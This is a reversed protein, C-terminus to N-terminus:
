APMVMRVREAYERLCEALREIAEGEAQVIRDLDLVLREKRRQLSAALGAALREAGAVSLTGAVTVWVTSGPRLEVEVRHGDEDAGRLRRWVRSPLSENPVRFTRRTLPPHQFLGLKLTVGTWAALGLAAVSSLRESMTPAGLAAHVKAELAAIQQRGKALVRGALFVPYARRIENAFREAKRRLAPNESDKLTEYGLLWTEISRFMSPGLRRLDEAFCHEQAAEIEAGSMTPHTVMARFGTCNRYYTERDDVLDSHLRDERM